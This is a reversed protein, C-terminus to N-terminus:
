IKFSKKIPLDSTEAPKKSVAVEIEKKLILSEFMSMIESEDTFKTDNLITRILDLPNKHNKNKLYIDAGANLIKSLFKKEDLPLYPVFVSTLSYRGHTKQIHQLALHLVTNGSSDQVNFNIPSTHNYKLFADIIKLRVSVDKIGPIMHIAVAGYKNPVNPNIGAKLLISVFEAKYKKSGKLVLRLLSDGNSDTINVNGGRAIIAPLDSHHSGPALCINILDINASQPNNTKM